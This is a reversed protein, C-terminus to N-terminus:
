TSAFTLSPSGRGWNRFALSSSRNKTDLSRSTSRGGNVDLKPTCNLPIVQLISQLTLDFSMWTSSVSFFRRYMKAAKPDESLSSFFSFPTGLSSSPSAGLDGLLFRRSLLLFLWSVFSSSAPRGASTEWSGSSDRQGAFSSSCQM